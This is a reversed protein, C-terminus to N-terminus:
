RNFLRHVAHRKKVRQITQPLRTVRHGEPLHKDVYEKVLRDNLRQSSTFTRDAIDEMSDGKARRYVYMLAYDGCVDSFMQQFDEQNRKQSPYRGLIEIFYPSYFSPPMGYSDFFESTTKDPFYMAIWHTGPKDHPDTNVIFARPYSQIKAPLRDAPFVGGWVPRLVANHEARQAIQRTSLIALDRRNLSAFFFFM